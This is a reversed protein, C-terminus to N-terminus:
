GNNHQKRGGDDLDEGDSTNWHFCPITNTRMGISQMHLQRATLHCVSVDPSARPTPLHTTLHPFIPSHVSGHRILNARYKKAHSSRLSCVCLAEVLQQLCWFPTGFLNHCVAFTTYRSLSAELLQALVVCSLAASLSTLIVRLFFSATASPQPQCGLGGGGVRLFHFIRAVLAM